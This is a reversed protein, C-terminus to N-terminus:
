GLIREDEASDVLANRTPVSGGLPFSGSEMAEPLTKKVVDVADNWRVSEPNAATDYASIINRTTGPDINITLACIHFM